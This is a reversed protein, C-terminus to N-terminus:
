SVVVEAEKVVGDDDGRMGEIMAASLVLLGGIMEALHLEASTLIAASVVAAVLETVIIIASRGAEMRTVSWQTGITILTLWLAGYAAALPIAGNGPLSANTPLTVLGTGILLSCGIFMASVKSMVPLQPTYRFLINTAALGMGSLLALVDIWTISYWATHWVDLIFFAGSLCLSVALMRMLDIKEGLFLRGGIISWVPLMYFLIMVRIVDGHYMATQFSANAIGGAIAILIMYRLGGQWQRYQRYLWPSLVLTGSLFAIGILYLSDLGMDNLIKLPLWTLGWGISSIFLLMVAMRTNM